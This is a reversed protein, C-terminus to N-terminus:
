LYLRYRWPYQLQVSARAPSSSCPGLIRTRSDLQPKVQQGGHDQPVAPRPSCGGWPGGRPDSCLWSVRYSATHVAGGPVPLAWEPETGRSVLLSSLALTPRSPLGPLPAAVAPHHGGWGGAPWRYKSQSRGWWGGAEWSAMGIDLYSVHFAQEESLESLVSCCAPGLAGLTGSSCSRLSLIKEGASNRLSDWTCGPGRNRLGDLRSGVGQCSLSLSLSAAVLRSGLM